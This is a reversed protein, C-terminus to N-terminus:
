LLLLVKEQNNDPMLDFGDMKRDALEWYSVSPYVAGMHARGFCVDQTCLGLKEAAGQLFLASPQPWVSRWAM